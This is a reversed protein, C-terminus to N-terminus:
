DQSHLGFISAAKGFISLCTAAQSPTEILFTTKDAQVLDTFHNSGVAIILKVLTNWFGTSQWV